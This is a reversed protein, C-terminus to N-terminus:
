TKYDPLLEGISTMLSHREAKSMAGPIHVMSKGIHPYKLMEEESHYIVTAIPELKARQSESMGAPDTSTSYVHQVKRGHEDTTLPSVWVLQDKREGTADPSKRAGPNILSGFDETSDVNGM